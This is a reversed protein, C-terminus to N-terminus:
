LIDVHARLINRVVETDREKNRVIRKQSNYEFDSYSIEVLKLGHQPLITRRRQDYIKRQVGRHVGSVTKRNPKDFFDVNETHQQERYEVVLKYTEYYADVPLKRAL